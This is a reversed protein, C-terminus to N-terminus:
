AGRGTRVGCRRDPADAPDAARGQDPRRRARCRWSRPHQDGHRWHRARGAMAAVGSPACRWSFACPEAPGPGANSVPVDRRVEPQGPDMAAFATITLTLDRCRWTSSPIPCCAKRLRSRCRRTRGRSRARRGRPSFTELSFSGRDPRAPERRGLDRRDDRRCHGCADLVVARPAALSPSTRAARVRRHRSLIRHTLPSFDFPRVDGLRFEVRLHFAPLLSTCSCGCIGRALAARCTFTAANVRPRRRPRSRRGRSATMPASCKSHAPPARQQGLRHRRGVTGRGFDIWPFADSGADGTPDVYHGREHSVDSCNEGPCGKYVTKNLIPVITPNRRARHPGAGALGGERTAKTRDPPCGHLEARPHLRQRRPWAQRRPLDLRQADICPDRQGSGARGYLRQCAVCWARRRSRDALGHPCDLM